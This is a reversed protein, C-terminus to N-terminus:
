LKIFMFQGNLNTAAQGAGIIQEIEAQALEPIATEVSVPNDCIM